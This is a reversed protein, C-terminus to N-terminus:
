ELSMGVFAKRGTIPTTVCASLAACLALALAARKPYVGRGGRSAPRAVSSRDRAPETRHM